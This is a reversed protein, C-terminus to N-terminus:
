SKLAGDWTEYAGDWTERTFPRHEDGIKKAYAEVHEIYRISQESCTRWGRIITETWVRAEEYQSTQKVQRILEETDYPVRREEVFTQGGEVTLLTYAAGSEMCDLPQGCSGSNIFLHGERQLYWQVHTHAFIYIGEPLTQLLEQFDEDNEFDNRVDALLRERTTGEPYRLATKETSFYRCEVGKLLKESDHVMYIRMGDCVFEEEDPLALLWEAQEKSLTKKAWYTVGFQGDDGIPRKLYKEGNGSIIRANKMGQLLEVVECPWPATICYDGVFLFEEAGQALADEVALKLAPYNGHVDSIIAYKM